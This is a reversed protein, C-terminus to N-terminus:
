IKWKLVSTEYSGLLHTTILFANKKNIYYKSLRENHTRTFVFNFGGQSAKNELKEVLIKGVGFGKWEERVAFHSLEIMNETSIIKENQKGFYSHRIAMIFSILKLPNRLLNILLCFLSHSCLCNILSLQYKTAFIFGIVDDNVKALFGWNGKRLLSIYMNELFKPGFLNLIGVKLEIQHIKCILGVHSEEISIYEIENM